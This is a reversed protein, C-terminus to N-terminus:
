QIFRHEATGDHAKKAQPRGFTAGALYKTEQFKIIVSM